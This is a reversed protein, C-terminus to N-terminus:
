FGMVKNSASFGGVRGLGSLSFLITFSRDNVLDSYSMEVSWCQSRYELGITKELTTRDFLNERLGAFVDLSNTARVRGVIGASEVSNKTYRYVFALSDGRTDNLAIDQQIQSWSSTNFDYASRNTFGLYRYPNIDLEINLPLFTATPDAPLATPPTPPITPITTTSFIAPTTINYTQSLKLRTLERYIVNGKEDATRGILTNTLAYTVGNSSDVGTVFDPRATQDVIPVYFYTVEPKVAHRIKQISGWNVDFV